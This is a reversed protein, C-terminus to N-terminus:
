TVAGRLVSCWSLSLSLNLIGVAGWFLGIGACHQQLQYLGQEQGAATPLAPATRPAGAPHNHPPPPRM